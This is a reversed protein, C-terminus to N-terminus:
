LITVFGQNRQGLRCRCGRCGRDATKAELWDEFTRWAFRCGADHMQDRRGRCRCCPTLASSWHKVGFTQETGEMDTGYTLRMAPKFATGAMEKRWGKLELNFPGVSALIGAGAAGFTWSGVAM